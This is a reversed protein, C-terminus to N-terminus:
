GLYGWHLQFFIWKGIHTVAFIVPNKNELKTHHIVEVQFGVAKRQLYLLLRLISRIHKKLCLFPIKRDAQIFAAKRRQYREFATRAKNLFM